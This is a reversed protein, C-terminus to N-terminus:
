GFRSPKLSLTANRSSNSSGSYTKPTLRLIGPFSEKLKPARELRAQRDTGRYIAVDPAGAGQALNSLFGLAIGLVFLIRVETLKM